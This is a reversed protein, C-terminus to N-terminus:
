HVYKALKDLYLPLTLINLIARVALNPMDVTASSHKKKQAFSGSFVSFDSNRVNEVRCIFCTGGYKMTVCVQHQHQQCFDLWQKYFFFFFLQRGVCFLLFDMLVSVSLFPRFADDERRVAELSILILGPRLRGGNSYWWEVSNDLESM